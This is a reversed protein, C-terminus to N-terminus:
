RTDLIAEPEVVITGEDNIPPLELSTNAKDGLKRRLLSAHFVPYLRAGEPLKLKYAM